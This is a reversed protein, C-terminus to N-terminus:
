ALQATAVEDTPIFFDDVSQWLIELIGVVLIAEFYSRTSDITYLHAEVRFLFGCNLDDDISM